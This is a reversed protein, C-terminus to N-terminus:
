LYKNNKHCLVPNTKCNFQSALTVKCQSQKGKRLDRQHGKIDLTILPEQESIKPFNIIIKM